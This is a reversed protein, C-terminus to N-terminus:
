TTESGEMESPKAASQGENLSELLEDSSVCSKLYNDFIKKKRNSYFDPLDSYIWNCFKIASITNNIRLESCNKNRDYISSSINLENELHRQIHILIKKAGSVIHINLRPTRCDKRNRVVISGDGDLFGLVASKFLDKKIGALVRDSKKSGIGFKLLSETSKTPLDYEYSISNDYKYEKGQSNTININRVRTRYKGGVFYENMAKVSWEESTYFCIRHYKNKALYYGGDSALLGIVYADTHTNVSDLVFCSKIQGKDQYEVIHREGLTINFM